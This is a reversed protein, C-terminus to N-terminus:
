WSVINQRLAASRRTAPDALCQDDSRQYAANLVAARDDPLMCDPSGDAEAHVRDCAEQAQEAGHAASYERVCGALREQQRDALVMCAAAWAIDFHLQAARRCHLLNPEVVAVHEGADAVPLPASPSPTAHHYLSAMALAAAGAAAAISTAQFRSVM